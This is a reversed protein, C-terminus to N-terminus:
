KPNQNESPNQMPQLVGPIPELKAPVYPVYTSGPPADIIVEKRHAASVLIAEDGIEIRRNVDRISNWQWLGIVIIAVLLV